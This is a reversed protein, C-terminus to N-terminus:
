GEGERAKGQLRKQAVLDVRTDVAQGGGDKFANLRAGGGDLLLHARHTPAPYAYLLVPQPALHAPSYPLTPQAPSPMRESCSTRGSPAQGPQAAPNRPTAQHMLLQKSSQQQYCLATQCVSVQVREAVREGARGSM